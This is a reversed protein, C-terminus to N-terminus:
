ERQRIESHCAFIGVHRRRHNYFVKEPRNLSVQKQKHKKKLLVNLLM